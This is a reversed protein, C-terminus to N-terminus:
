PGFNHVRNGVHDDADRLPSSLTSGLRDLADVFEAASQYRRGPDKATARDIVDALPAPVGFTALNPLPTVAIENVLRTLSVSAAPEFPQEGRLVAYLTLGLSYVDSREDGRAGDIVEPASYMVTLSFTQDTQDTLDAQSTRATGFDILRYRGDDGIMINSPKIDRHLVGHQHAAALAEGIQRGITIVAAPDYRGRRTTESALSGRSLFPSVLYTRGDALRGWGLLDIIGATGAVRRLAEIERRARDPDAPDIIKIAVHAGTDTAVARLVTSTGGRAAIVM